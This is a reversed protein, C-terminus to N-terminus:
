DSDDKGRKFSQAKTLKALKEEPKAFQCFSRYDCFRCSHDRNHKEISGSSLTEIMSQFLQDIHAELKDPDYTSMSWLKPQHTKLWTSEPDMASLASLEPNSHKLAKLKIAEQKLSIYGIGLPEGLLLYRRSLWLYTPLQIQYGAHVLRENLTKKSSKYDYLYFGKDSIDLRDIKGKIQLNSAQQTQILERYPQEVLFRKDTQTKEFEGFMESLLKLNDQIRQSIRTLEGTKKPFLNILAEIRQNLEQVGQVNLAHPYNEQQDKLTLELVKHMLNGMWLQNFSLAERKRLKLGYKLFYQYSCHFFTEFSSVSGSLVGEKFFLAQAISAPVQTTTQTEYETPLYSPWAQASLKTQKMWMALEVALKRAKGEFNGLYYSIVLEPASHLVLDLEHMHHDFHAQVDYGKIDRLYAEDFLGKAERLQPYNESIAGMVYIRQKHPVLAEDLSVVLIGSQKPSTYTLQDMLADLHAWPHHMTSVYPHIDELLERLRSLMGYDQADSLDVCLDFVDSLLADVDQSVNIIRNFSTQYMTLAELAHKELELLSRTPVIGDLRDDLTQAIHGQHTLVDQVDWEFLQIYDVLDQHRPHNFAEHNLLELLNEHTPQRAIQILARMLQISPHRESHHAVHHTLAASELAHKLYPLQQSDSCIIMISDLDLKSAVIDQVIAQAELRPNPAYRVRVQPEYRKVQTSQAGEKIWQDLHRRAGYGYRGVEVVYAEPHEISLLAQWQLQRQNFLPLLESMLQKLAQEKPTQTPLDELTYGEDYFRQIFSMIQDVTKPYKLMTDLRHYPDQYNELFGALRMWEITKDSPYLNNLFVSLSLYSEDQIFTEQKIRQLVLSDAVVSSAIHTLKPM